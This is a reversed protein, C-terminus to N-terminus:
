KLVDPMANDVFPVDWFLLSLFTKLPGSSMLPKGFASSRLDLFVLLFPFLIMVVSVGSFSAMSSLLILPFFLTQMLDLPRM